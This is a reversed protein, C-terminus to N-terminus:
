HYESSIIIPPQELRWTLPLLPVKASFSDNVGDLVFRFPKETRLAQKKGTDIQILSIM